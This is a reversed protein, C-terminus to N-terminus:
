IRLGFLTRSLPPQVELGPHLVGSVLGFVLFDAQLGNTYRIGFVVIM